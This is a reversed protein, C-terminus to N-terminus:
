RAPLCRDGRILARVGVRGAPSQTVHNGAAPAVDFRPRCSRGQLFYTALHALWTLQYRTLVRHM